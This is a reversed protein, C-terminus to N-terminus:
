WNLRTIGTFKVSQTVMNREKERQRQQHKSSPLGLVAFAEFCHHLKFTTTQLWNVKLWLHSEM